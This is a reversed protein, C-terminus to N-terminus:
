EEESEADAFSDEVDSVLNRVNQPAIGRELKMAERRHERYADNYQFPLLRMRPDIVDSNFEEIATKADAIGERDKRDMAYNFHKQLLGRQTSWFDVAQQKAWSIERKESLASPNFNLAKGIIESRTPNHILEGKNGRVGNEDWEVASAMAGLAGPFKTLNLTLDNGNQIDIVLQTAWKTLSGAVGFVAVTTDGIREAATDYTKALTETGPIVNGLGLSQSVDFGEDLLGFLDIDGGLGKAWWRPDNLWSAGEVEPLEQIGERLVQRFPKMGLNLWIADLVDLLDEAAPLAEYGGLLLFAVLMRQTHSFSSKPPRMLGLAVRRKVGLNYGGASHFTAHVMFSLFITALPVLAGGVGGGRMIVSRNALTYSNQLLDTQKVAETYVFEKHIERGEAKAQAIQANVVTLFTIRRTYQEALTFPLMGAESLKGLGNGVVDTTRTRNAIRKTVGATAAGALHAAYSQVLTGEALAKSYMEDVVPDSGGRTHMLTIQKHAKALSATGILDGYQSNVANITFLLGTLNLVATKPSAWLYTLAVGARVGYWENPPSLMYGTTKEMFDLSKQVDEMMMVRAKESIGKELNIAQKMARGSALAAAFLPIAETRAILTSNHWVFDAFNRMRDKSGGSIKDLAKAYPQLIKETKVPYLLGELLEKQAQTLGLAEAAKEVYELPLALMSRTEDTLKVSTEVRQGEKLNKEVLTRARAVDGATEFMQRYVVVRKGGVVETVKLGWAGYDGRPLFPLNQIIKFDKRLDNLRMLFEREDLVVRSLEREIVAQGAQLQQLLINKNKVYVEMTMRGSPHNLNIGFAKLKEVTEATVVHQLGQQTQQLQTWHVGELEEAELVKSLQADSEKGLDRWQKITSEAAYQLRSKTANYQLSAASDMDLHNYEPHIFALQQKPLVYWQMNALYRLARATLGMGEYKEITSSLGDLELGVPTDLPVDVAQQLFIKSSQAFTTNLTKIQASRFPVWSTGGEVYNDYKIGDFGKNQLMTRLPQFLQRRIKTGGESAIVADTIGFQNKFEAKARAVEFLEEATIIGKEALLEGFKVPDDWIATRGSESLEVPNRINLIAPILNWGLDKPKLLKEGTKVEQRSLYTLTEIKNDVDRQMIAESRANVPSVKYARANAALASGFHFGVDGRTFVEFDGQTAHFYVLPSGDAAVVKSGEGVEWDGFFAKLFKSKLGKAKWERMAAERWVPDLAQAETLGAFEVDLEPNPDIQLRILNRAFDVMSERVTVFSGERLLRYLEQKQKPSFHGYTISRRLQKTVENPAYEPLNSVVEPKVKKGILEAGVVTPSMLQGTRSLSNIWTEFEVGAKIRYTQGTKLKIGKKLAIFLDRLGSLVKDWTTNLLETRINEENEVHTIGGGLLALAKPSKVLRKEYALRAFREAMFEELSLYNQMLKDILADKEKTLAARDAPSQIKAIKRNLAEVKPHGRSVLRRVFSEANTDPQTKNVGLLGRQVSLAPSMWEQQFWLATETKLKARHENFSRLIGQAEQPFAAISSESIHGAKQEELMNMQVEPSINEFFRELILVHSFEHAANDLIKAKTSPNFQSPSLGDPTSLQRAQAPVIVYEGSTLKQMAGIAQHTKLSQPAILIRAEPTFAAAFEAYLEQTAELLDLGWAASPTAATTVGIPVKVSGVPQGILEPSGLLIQQQSPPTLNNEDQLYNLANAQVKPTNGIQLDNEVEADVSTKPEAFSEDFGQLASGDNLSEPLPAKPLVSALLADLEEDTMPESTQLAQERIPSFVADEVFVNSAMSGSGGLSAESNVEELLDDLINQNVEVQALDGAKAADGVADVADDVAKRRGGVLHAMSGGLAASFPTQIATDIIASLTKEGFVEMSEEPRDILKSITEQAGTTLIESGTERIVYDKVLKSFEDKGLGRLLKGMPILEGVGEAISQLGASVKAREDSSGNRRSENYALPFSLAGALAISGVPDKTTAGYLLAPATIGSSAAIGQLQRQGETPNKPLNDAFATDAATIGGLMRAESEAMQQDFGPSLLEQYKARTSRHAEAYPIGQGMLNRVELNGERSLAGLTRDPQKYLEIATNIGSAAGINFSDAAGKLGEPSFPSTEGKAKADKLAEEAYDQVALVPMVVRAAKSGFDKLAGTAFDLTTDVLGKRLPAPPAATPNDFGELATLVDSDSFDDSFEYMKGDYDVKRPM